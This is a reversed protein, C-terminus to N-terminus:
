ELATTAAATEAVTASNKSISDQDPANLKMKLLMLKGAVSEDFQGVADM